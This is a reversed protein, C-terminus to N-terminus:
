GVDRARADDANAGEVRRFERTTAFSRRSELDFAFRRARTARADRRGDNSRPPACRRRARTASADGVAPRAVCRSSAVRRRRSSAVDVRFGAGAARRRAAVPRGPAAVPAAFIRGTGSEMDPNAFRSQTGGGFVRGSVRRPQRARSRGPPVPRRIEM